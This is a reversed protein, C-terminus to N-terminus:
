KESKTFGEIIVDVGGFQDFNLNEIMILEIKKSLSDRIEKVRSDITIRIRVKLGISKGKIFIQTSPLNVGPISSCSKRVLEKLASPTIQVADAQDKFVPLLVPRIKRIVLWITLLTLIILVGILFTFSLLAEKPSASLYQLLKAIV